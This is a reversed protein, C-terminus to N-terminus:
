FLDEPSSESDFFLADRLSGLAPPEPHAPLRAAFEALAEVRRELDDLKGRLRALTMDTSAPNGTFKAM